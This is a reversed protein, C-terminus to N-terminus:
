IERQPAAESTKKAEGASSQGPKLTTLTNRKKAFDCM